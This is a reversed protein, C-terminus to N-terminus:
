QTSNKAFVVLTTTQFVWEHIERHPRFWCQVQGADAATIERLRYGYRMLQGPSNTSNFDPNPPRSVKGLDGPPMLAGYPAEAPGKTIRGHYRWMFHNAMNRFIGDPLPLRISCSVILCEGETATLYPPENAFVDSRRTVLPLLMYRQLVRRHPTYVPASPVAVCHVSGGSRLTVNLVTFFLTHNDRAFAYTQGTTDDEPLPVPQGAQFVLQDQHLWSVHHPDVGAPVSCSFTVNDGLRPRYVVSDAVSPAPALRTLTIRDDLRNNLLGEALM